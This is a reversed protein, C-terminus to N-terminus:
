RLRRPDDRDGASERTPQVPVFLRHIRGELPHGTPLGIHQQQAGLAQEWGAADPPCTRGPGSRDGTFYIFLLRAHIGNRRLFNLVALRNCFQYYGSLWDRDDPVGLDAKTEAFTKAILPRGGEEKAQCSSRLEEVNAKAEVLVWEWMGGILAEGVADWNPANGTTPWTAKWAPELAAADRLFGIGKWEGDLWPAAPNFPYDCWRLAVGGLADLVLRDLQERHRGLFRLLHCESGYGVGMRAM